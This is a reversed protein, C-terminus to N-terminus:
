PVTPKMLRRAPRFSPQAPATRCIGAEVILFLFHLQGLKRANRERMQRRREFMQRAQAVMETTGPDVDLAIIAGSKRRAAIFSSFELIRHTLRQLLTGVRYDRDTGHLRIMHALRRSSGALETQLAFYQQLVAHLLRAIKVPVRTINKEVPDKAGVQALVVFTRVEIGRDGLNGILNNRSTARGIDNGATGRVGNARQAIDATTEFQQLLERVLGQMDVVNDRRRAAGTSM